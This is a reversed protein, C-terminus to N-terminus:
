RTSFNPRESVDYGTHRLVIRGSQQLVQAVREVLGRNTASFIRSARPIERPQQPAAYGGILM